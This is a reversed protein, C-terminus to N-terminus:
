ILQEACSPSLPILKMVFGIMIIAYNKGGNNVDEKGAVERIGNINTILNSNLFTSLEITVARKRRSSGATQETWYSICEYDTISKVARCKFPEFPHTANAFQDYYQQLQFVTEIASQDFYQRPQFLPLTYPVITMVLM